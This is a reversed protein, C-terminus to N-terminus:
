LTGEQGTTGAARPGEEYEPTYEWPWPDRTWGESLESIDSHTLPGFKSEYEAKLRAAEDRHKKMNLFMGRDYPHTDMYLHLEWAAFQASSLRRM